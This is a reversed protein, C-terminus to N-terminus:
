SRLWAATDRIIAELGVPALGARALAAQYVRGDGVYRDEQTTELAPRVVELNPLDLARGVAAALDAMEVVEPGATDFALPAADDLALDFVVQALELVHVYSRLVPRRAGIEIVGGALAQQIFSGLAYSGPHTMYPGGVNFIRPILLPVGAKRGWAHVITEQDRKLDNYGQKGPSGQATQYVAGSSASVFRRVPATQALALVDALMAENLARLADPDAVRDAGAVALHLVLWQGEGLPAGGHLPELRVSRGAIDISRHQSGYLRLRAAPDRGAAELVAHAMARGIWGSAGTIAVGGGGDLWDVLKANAQM